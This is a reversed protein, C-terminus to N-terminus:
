LNRKFPSPAETKFIEEYLARGSAWSGWSLKDPAWEGDSTVRLLNGYIEKARILIATVVADYPKQATKCFDFYFDEAIRWEPQVPNAEWRFTEHSLDGSPGEEGNFAFYGETFEPSTGMEGFPGALRIGISQAHECILKADLALKGFMEATGHNGVIRDTYHTYGM